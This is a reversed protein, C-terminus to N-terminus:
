VEVEVEELEVVDAAEESVLIGTDISAVQPKIDFWVHRPLAKPEQQECHFQHPVVSAYQM